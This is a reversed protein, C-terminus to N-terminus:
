YVFALALYYGAVVTFMVADLRDLLGGHPGFITGSDQDRPRAQGDIRLPRRDACAVGRLDRDAARRTGAALGPLPRRVLFGPHRRRGWLCPGRADEQALDGSRASPTRLAARRRLRRHRRRLHRRARRGAARCRPRAARAAAGRPRVSGRDMRDRLDHDRDLPDGPRPGAARGRRRVRGPDLRRARDDDAPPHRLAGRDCACRRRRLRGPSVTARCQDHSLIRRPRRLRLRDDGGRVARGRGGHDHGRDRDLPAGM